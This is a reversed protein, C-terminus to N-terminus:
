MFIIDKIVTTGIKRNLKKKIGPKLLILENRWSPNSVKIFLTGDAVKVPETYNSIEKGAVDRWFNMAQTEKVQKELGSNKLLNEILTGIQEFRNNKTSNM